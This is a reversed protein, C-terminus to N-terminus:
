PMQVEYFPGCDYETKSEHTYPEGDPSDCIVGKEVIVHLKSVIMPSLTEIGAVKLGDRVQRFWNANNEDAEDLSIHCGQEICCYSVGKKLSLNLEFVSGNPSINKVELGYYDTHGSRHKPKNKALLDAIVQTLAKQLDTPKMPGIGEAFKTVAVLKSVM